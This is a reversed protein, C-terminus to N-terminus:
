VVRDRGRKSRRWWSSGHRLRWIVGDRRRGLTEFLALGVLGVIVVNSVWNYIQEAYYRWPNDYPDTTPHPDITSYNEDAYKHCRQCTQHRHEANTPAEPDSSPRLQHVSLFYNDYDAHCDLCNAAKTFGYRTVKGHFSESYSKVAIPFKKGLKEGKEEAAKMHRDVLKEDGHCSSCLAVIEASSRKM